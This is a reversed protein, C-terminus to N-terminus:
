KKFDNSYQIKNQRIADSPLVRYQDKVYIGYIYQFTNKKDKKGYFTSFMCM